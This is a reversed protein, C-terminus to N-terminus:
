LPGLTGANSTNTTSPTNLTNLTNPFIPRYPGHHRAPLARATLGCFCCVYGREWQLPSAATADATPDATSDNWLRWSATVLVPSDHWCHLHPTNSTPLM